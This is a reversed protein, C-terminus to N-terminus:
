YQSYSDKLADLKKRARERPDQHLFAGPQRLEEVFRDIDEREVHPMVYIHCYDRLEGNFFLTKGSLSYKSFIDKNPRKFYIALSLRTRSVWLDERLENQLTRLRAEAYDAVQLVRAVKQIEDAFSNSSNHSWLMLSVHANRSCTLTPESLPHQHQATNTALLLQLGTRTLYIGGPWPSGFWKATSTVISSVSELRFDFMPGPADKIIGQKHGMEIFPMYSCSLAGDIHFWFGQRTASLNPNKPHSIEREYMGNKKLIPLLTEEVSKIDDYAGKFTSGYNFVLIIPHGKGSFFDVLKALAEVDISGPGADGNECPVDRQWAGGLPNEHPYFQTGIDHFTPVNCVQFGKVVGYHFDASYFGVPKLANMNDSKCQGQVFSQMPRPDGDTNVSSVLFMGSLYDRASRLAFMNGETSGMPAIYGWYSDPDSPDHPWKAHWLSANYDLVNRELWKTNGVTASKQQRFPDGENDLHVNCLESLVPYSFKQNAQFGLLGAAVKHLMASTEELARQRQEPALGSSPLQYLTSTIGPVEPYSELQLPDTSPPSVLLEGAETVAVESVTERWPRREPGYSSSSSELVSHTKHSRKVDPQTSRVGFGVNQAAMAVHM